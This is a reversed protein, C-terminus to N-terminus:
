TAPTSLFVLSLHPVKLETVKASASECRVFMKSNKDRSEATACKVNIPNNDNYANYRSDLWCKSFRFQINDDDDHFVM